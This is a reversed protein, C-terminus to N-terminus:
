SRTTTRVTGDGNDTYSLTAGAQIDGDDGARYVTTQGTAPFQQAAAVNANCTALNANCSDLEQQTAVLDTHCSQLDANCAAREATCIVVDENCQPLGGPRAPATGTWCAVVTAM